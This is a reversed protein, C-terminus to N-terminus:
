SRVKNILNDIADFKHPEYPLFASLYSTVPQLVETPVFVTIPPLFRKLPVLVVSAPSDHENVSYAKFDDLHYAKNGIYLEDERLHYTQPSIKHVAFYVFVGAALLVAGTSIADRTILYALGGLLVAGILYLGRKGAGKATAQEGVSWEFGMGESPESSQNLGNPLVSPQPAAYIGDDQAIPEPNQNGTFTPQTIASTDSGPEVGSTANPSMGYQQASSPAVPVATQVSQELPQQTASQGQDVVPTVTQGPQPEQM